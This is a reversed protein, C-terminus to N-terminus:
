SAFVDSLTISLGELVASPLVAGSDYAIGRYAGDQLVFAQVTKAAPAVVWYKRVGAKMYLNFKRVMEEAINGPSLVEVVLDPAGRCGETGRKKEDCIVSIDTQVVTDDSEDEAYFLRVDYPAPRVKRPKGHLYNAIQRSIEGCIARHFDNPAPMAYAAGDILEFREGEKLEWAKYDAYTFPRAEGPINRVADSMHWTYAPVCVADLVCHGGAFRRRTDCANVKWDIRKGCPAGAAPKLAAKAPIRRAPGLFFM